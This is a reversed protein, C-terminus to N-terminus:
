SWVPSSKSVMTSPRLLEDVSVFSKKKQEMIGGEKARVDFLPYTRCRLHISLYIQSGSVSELRRQPRDSFPPIPTVAESKGEAVQTPIAPSAHWHIAHAYARFLWPLLLCIFFLQLLYEYSRCVSISHARTGKVRNARTLTLPKRESVHGVCAMFCAM